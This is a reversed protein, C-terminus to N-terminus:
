DLGHIQANPKGGLSRPIGSKNIGYRELEKVTDEKSYGSHTIMKGATVLSGVFKVLQPFITDVFKKKGSRPPSSVLHIRKRRLPLAESVLQEVQMGFPFDEMRFSSNLVCLSIAGDRQALENEAVMSFIYFICRLRQMTVAERNEKDLRSRDYCLVPFQDGDNPLIAIYGTNLVELDEQSLAGEGTQTMPLFAREGFLAKRHRWYAALRKAASWANYNEFRLFRIPPSEIEVLHPVKKTAEKYAATEADSLLELAAGLERRAARWVESSSFDTTGYVLRFFAERESASMDQEEINM